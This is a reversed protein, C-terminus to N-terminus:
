QEVEPEAPIFDLKAGHWYCLQTYLIRARLRWLLQQSEPLQNWGALVESALTGTTPPGYSVDDESELELGDTMNHNHWLTRAMVELLEPDLARLRPRGDPFTIRMLGLAM